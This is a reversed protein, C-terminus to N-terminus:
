KRRAVIYWWNSVSKDLNIHSEEGISDILIGKGLLDIIEEKEFFYRTIGKIKYANEAIKEGVNYYKDGTKKTSFIFLGNQKLCSQVKSFIDKLEFKNFFQFALNSYVCDYMYSFNFDAKLDQIQAELNTLNQAKSIKKVFEIAEVSFDTATNDYGKEAFFISDRGQGCGLELIKKVNHKEMIDLAMLALKTPGTGFANPKNYTKKWYGLKELQDAVFDDTKM